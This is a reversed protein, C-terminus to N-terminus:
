VTERELPHRFAVLEELRSALGLMREEEWPPCMLQGGVPLGDVLGIPISVAPIGALNASVTYIDSLYMAYPEDSKEGLRFAPTPTTPAFLADVGGVFVRQLDEAIAARVQQARLYYAEYYGASLAYTGLMIRRKVEAGFGAGRTSAYLADIDPADAHRFGYRVGDYRALNSSAEAPALVYYCPIALGTHPLAVERVEAGAGAMRRLTEETRERVGPALGEGLFEAPVGITRGELGFTDLAAARPPRRDQCTADLPDAGAIVELVEAADRVRRALIGIVDLSSAFAVLGYRSVRGYTPKVGVVGCFSAPQRISGGTSSGLAVPVVGAAVAAASGGSSGGPVRSRDVPNRTPGFASHETSSGMGFEDLNTKGFLLAGEALVRRVATAAFPSRYGELIRSGCTTPLDPTCINDKVAIPIGVLRGGPPGEGSAAPAMRAHAAGTRAPERGGAPGAADGLTSLFAHVPEPAADLEENRRAALRLM